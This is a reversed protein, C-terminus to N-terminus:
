SCHRSYIRQLITRNRILYHWYFFGQRRIFKPTSSGWKVRLLIGHFCIDYSGACDKRQEGQRMEQPDDHFPRM